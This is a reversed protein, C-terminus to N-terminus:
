LIQTLGWLLYLGVLGTMIAEFRSVNFGAVSFLPKPRKRATKPRIFPKLGLASAIRSIGAWLVMFGVCLIILKGIMIKVDAWDYFM